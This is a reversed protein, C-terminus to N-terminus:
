AHPGWNKYPNIGLNSNFYRPDGSVEAGAWPPVPFREAAAAVEIEAVVLGENDGHFEDIEWRHGQFEERYRTKEILPRECLQDLMIAADTVPIPYEFELRTVGTTLGKVTLFAKEGAIRLRVVREKVSSLYGQRYLVGEMSPKWLDRRVLYKHEIENAM